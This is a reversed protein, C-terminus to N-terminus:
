GVSERARAILERFDQEPTGCFCKQKYDVCGDCIIGCAKELADTLEKALSLLHEAEYNMQQTREQPAANLIDDNKTCRFLFM